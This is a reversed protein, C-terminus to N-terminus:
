CCFLEPAIYENSYYKDSISLFTTLVLYVVPGHTWFKSFSSFKRYNSIMLVFILISPNIVMSDTIKGLQVLIETDTGTSYLAIIPVGVVSVRAFILINKFESKSVFAMSRFSSVKKEVSLIEFKRNEFVKPGNIPIFNGAGRTSSIVGFIFLNKVRRGVCTTAAGAALGWGLNQVVDFFFYWKWM